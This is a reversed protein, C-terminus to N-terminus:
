EVWSRYYDPDEVDLLERAVKLMRFTDYMVALEDTRKQGLSSKADHVHERESIPPESRTAGSGDHFVAPAAGADPHQEM